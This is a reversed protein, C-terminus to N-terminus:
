QPSQVSPAQRDGVETDTEVSFSAFGSFEFRFSTDLRFFVATKGKLHLDIVSPFWVGHPLRSGRYSTTAERVSAGLGGAVKVPPDGEPTRGQEM